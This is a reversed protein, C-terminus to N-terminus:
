KGDIYKNIMIQIIAKAYHEPPDQFEDIVLLTEEISRLENILKDYEKKREEAIELNQQAKELKEKNEDNETQKSKEQATEM